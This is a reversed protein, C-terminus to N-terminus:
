GQQGGSSHTCKLPLLEIKKKKKAQKTLLDVKQPFFKGGYLCIREKILLSEKPFPEDGPFCVSLCAFLFACYNNGKFFIASFLPSTRYM